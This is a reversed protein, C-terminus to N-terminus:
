ENAKIKTPNANNLPKGLLCSNFKEDIAKIVPMITNEPLKIKSEIVPILHNPATVGM